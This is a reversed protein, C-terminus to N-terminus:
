RSENESLLDLKALRSARFSKAPNTEERISNDLEDDEGNSGTLIGATTICPL